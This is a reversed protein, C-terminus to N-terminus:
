HATEKCFTDRDVLLQVRDSCFWSRGLEVPRGDHCVNLSEAHLVPNVEPSHLHRGILTGAREATLRTWARTYDPIGAALLARTVSPDARLSEELGPLRGVPFTSRAYVIPVGDATSVSEVVLVTASQPLELLEADRPEAVVTEIRLIQRGPEFGLEALNHSLRTRIGIPYDFRGQTVYAGAGRRVHIRNEERLAELARRVTHRNVDFRQSLEAETPLKAGPPYQGADIESGITEHIRQWLTRSRRATRITVFFDEHDRAIKRSM